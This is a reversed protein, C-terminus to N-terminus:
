LFKSSQLRQNKRKEQKLKDNAEINKSLENIAAIDIDIVNITPTREGEEAITKMQSSPNGSSEM